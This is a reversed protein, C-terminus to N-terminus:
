VGNVDGFLEIEYSKNHKSVKGYNIKINLMMSIFLLCDINDDIYWTNKNSISEVFLFKDEPDGSNLGVYKFNRIKTHKKMFINIKDEVKQTRSSLIVIQYGKNYLEEMFDITEYIPIARKLDIDEFESFSSEDILHDYEKKKIKYVEQSIRYYGIDRSRSLLLVHEKTNAITQDFDFIAIRKRKNKIEFFKTKLRSLM